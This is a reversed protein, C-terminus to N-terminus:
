PDSQSTLLDAIEDVSLGRAVPRELRARYAAADTFRELRPRGNSGRAILLYAGAARAKGRRKRRNSKGAV